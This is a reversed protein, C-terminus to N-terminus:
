DELYEGTMARAALVWLEIAEDRERLELKGYEAEGCHECLHLWESVIFLDGCDQCKHLM